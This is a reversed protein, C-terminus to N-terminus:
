TIEGQPKSLYIVAQQSPSGAAMSPMRNLLRATPGGNVSTVAPSPLVRGSVLRIRVSNLQIAAHCQPRVQITQNRISWRQGFLRCSSQPNQAATMVDHYYHIKVILGTAYLQCVLQRPYRAICCTGTWNLTRFTRFDKAPLAPSTRTRSSREKLMLSRSKTLMMPGLPQPLVVIKLMMAPRISGSEPEM